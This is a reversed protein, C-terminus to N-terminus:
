CVSCVIDKLLPVSDWLSKYYASFRVHNVNVPSPHEGQFQLIFCPFANYSARFSVQKDYPVCSVPMM